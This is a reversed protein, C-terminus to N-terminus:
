GGFFAFPPPFSHTGHVFAFQISVITTQWNAPNALSFYTFLHGPSATWDRTPKRCWTVVWECRTRIYLTCGQVFAEKRLLIQLESILIWEDVNWFTSRDKAHCYLAIVNERLSVSLTHATGETFAVLRLSGLILYNQSEPGKLKFTFLFVIIKGMQIRWISLAFHLSSQYAALGEVHM